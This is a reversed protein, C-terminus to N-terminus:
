FDIKNISKRKNGEKHNTKIMIVFALKTFIIILTLYERPLIKNMNMNQPSIITENFLVLGNM